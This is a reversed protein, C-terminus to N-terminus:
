KLFKWIFSQMFSYSNGTLVRRQTHSSYKFSTPPMLFHSPSCRHMCVQRQLCAAIHPHSTCGMTTVLHASHSCTNTHGCSHRNVMLSYPPLTALVPFIDFLPFIYRFSKCSSSISIATFTLQYKWKISPSAKWYSPKGITGEYILQGDMLTRINKQIKKFIRCKIYELWVM